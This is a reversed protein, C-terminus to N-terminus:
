FTWHISEKMEQLILCYRFFSRIVIDLIEQMFKQCSINITDWVQTEDFEACEAMSKIIRNLEEQRNFAITQVAM